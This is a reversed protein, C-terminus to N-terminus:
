ARSVVSAIGAIVGIGLSSLAMIVPFIFSVATLPADGLLGIYYADVLGVSMIALVGFVMPLTQRILHNGVSGQTLTAGEVSM